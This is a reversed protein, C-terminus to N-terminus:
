TVASDVRTFGDEVRGRLETLEYERGRSALLETDAFGGAM